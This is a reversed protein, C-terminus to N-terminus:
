LSRARLEAKQAKGNANRPIADIFRVHKPRKYSALSASCAAVVAAADLSVGPRLVLYACGVEGWREDPVGIVAVDAVGPIRLLASEVEAPYVNEGGSIYMDKSRDLVYFYGDADRMGIDGSRFWGGPFFGSENADPRRWYGPTVAPGRLVLEGATGDPVEEGKADVIRADMAIAPLGVSGFKHRITELTRPVHMCTGTESMGFGNSVLIGDDVMRELLDHPMPAGGLFLGELRNLAEPVYTPDDVLARCIQPVGFYHTAGVKPDLLREIALAPTFRETLAFTAGMRLSCWCIAMLGVVHFLPADCLLVSSVKVDACVAFNLAQYWANERTIIAGKPKGTTGSTYLLFMPADPGMEAWGGAAPDAADVLANFAPSTFARTNPALRLAELIPGAFEEDYVVLAPEADTLMFGLEEGGLRWNLPQLIAGLRFCALIFVLYEISNRALIALPVGRVDGAMAGIAAVAQSVRVDLEGYAISRGTNLEICAAKLPRVGAHYAAFDRDIHGVTQFQQRTGM